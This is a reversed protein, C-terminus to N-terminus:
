LAQHICHMVYCSCVIFLHMGEVKMDRKQMEKIVGNIHNRAAAEGLGAYALCCVPLAYPKRNRDSPSILTVLIHTAPTRKHWTVAKIFHKLHDRIHSLQHNIDGLSKNEDEIYEQAVTLDVSLQRAQENLRSLEDIKWGLSYIMSDTTGPASLKEEYASQNKRLALLLVSHILYLVSM